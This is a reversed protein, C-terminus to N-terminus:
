PESEPQQSAMTTQMLATTTLYDSTSNDVPCGATTLVKMQPPKVFLVAGAGIWFNIVAASVLGTLAGVWNAYPFFM